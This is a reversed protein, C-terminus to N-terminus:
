QVRYKKIVEHIKSKLELRIEQKLLDKQYYEAELQMIEVYRKSGINSPEVYASKGDFVEDWVERLITWFERRAQAYAKADSCEDDSVRVYWNKGVERALPTKVGDKYITKTNIQRELWNSGYAVIKTHRDLTNYDKRGMDRTERGPIPAFNSCAWEPYHKDETWKAACQYRLGDDLNTVRRTWLDSDLLKVAWNQPSQFDYLFSANFEWDEVQHKLLAEKIVEGQPNVAFLVHQLRIRNESIEDAYIYEKVTNKTNVDYVRNDKVYGEKLSDTEVYSYDIIYCGQQSLIAQRGVDLQGASVTVAILFGFFLSFKSM